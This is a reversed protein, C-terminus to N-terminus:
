IPDRFIFSLILDLALVAAIVGCVAFRRKAGLRDAFRDLLPEALYMLLLGGVGFSLVSRLCVYGDINLFLGTYDWWRKHWVEWMLFGTLYELVGTVLMSLAFFLAPRRKFRKLLLVMLVAGSGYVPLWPGFLFGRNGVFHETAYYFVEEYIWGAICCIFFVLFLVQVRQLGRYEHQEENLDRMFRKIKM